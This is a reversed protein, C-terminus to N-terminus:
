IYDKIIQNILALKLKPDNDLWKVDLEIGDKDYLSVDLTQALSNYDIVAEGGEPPTFYNGRRYPTRSFYVNGSIFISLPIVKDAYKYDFDFSYNIDFYDRDSDPDVDELSGAKDMIKWQTINRSGKIIDNVLTTLFPKSNLLESMQDVNDMIEDLNASYKTLSETITNVMSDIVNDTKKM